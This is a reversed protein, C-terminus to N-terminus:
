EGIVQIKQKKNLKKKKKLINEPAVIGVSFVM